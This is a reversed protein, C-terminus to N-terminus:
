ESAGSDTGQAMEQRLERTLRDEHYRRKNYRDDAGHRKKTTTHRPKSKNPVRCVGAAGSTCRAM